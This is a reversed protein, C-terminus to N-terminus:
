GADEPRYVSFSVDWIGARLCALMIPEVFRYAVRRDGRIRVELNGGEEEARATLRKTLEPPRVTRGTLMITGDAQVNVILRPIDQITDQRGSEATPLPLPLKSEQKALQSSVLFFIILLFVVDIMPTMNFSLSGSRLNSPARM